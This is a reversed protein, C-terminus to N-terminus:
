ALRGGTVREIDALDARSFIEVFGAQRLFERCPAAQEHGHEFLLWGGPALHAPAADAIARLCALGEEPAVLAEAPEHRLDGRALHPDGVAVYPPNAAIVLFSEGALRSFWNGLRFEVNAVGHAGANEQALALAPRSMDVAVVRVRPRQRAVTIAVCGSGTGLDLVGAGATPPLRELVVDVLLETEPRPILVAPTVRFDLGYFERHGTIYAVPEGDARRAILREFTDRAGADLVEAGHAIFYAADRKLLHALLVRADVVGVKQAAQALAQELTVSV